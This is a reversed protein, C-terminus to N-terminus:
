RLRPRETPTVRSHEVLKISLVLEAIARQAAYDIGAWGDFIGGKAFLYYAPVLWPAVFGLRRIRDPWSLERWAHASLKQLEQGAYTEQSMLWRRLPKRDDHLVPNSLQGATGELVL